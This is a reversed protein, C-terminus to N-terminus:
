DIDTDKSTLIYALVEQAARGTEPLSRLKKLYDQFTIKNSYADKWQNFREHINQFARNHLSCFNNDKTKEM